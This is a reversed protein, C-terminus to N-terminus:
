ETEGSLVKILPCVPRSGSNCECIANSLVREMAQLDGTDYPQNVEITVSRSSM